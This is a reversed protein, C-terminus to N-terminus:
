NVSFDLFCTCFCFVHLTRCRVEYCAPLRHGNCLRHADPPWYIHVCADFCAEAAAPSAGPRAWSLQGSWLKRGSRTEAKRLEFAACADCGASPAAATPHPTFHYAPIFHRAQPPEAAAPSPASPMSPALVAAPSASPASPVAPAHTASSMPAPSSEPATESATPPPTAAAPAPEMAAAREPVQAPVSAAESAREQAAGWPTSPTHEAVPPAAAPYAPAAKPPPALAPAGGWAVAPAPQPPQLLAQQWKQRKERQPLAHPEPQAQQQSNCEGSKILARVKAMAAAAAEPPMGAFLRFGFRFRFPPVPRGAKLLKEQRAFETVPLFAQGEADYMLQMGAPLPENEMWFCTVAQGKPKSLALFTAVFAGDEAVVGAPQLDKSPAAVPAPAPAPASGAADHELKQRKHPPACQGNTASEPLAPAARTTEM